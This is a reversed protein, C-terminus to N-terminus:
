FYSRCPWLAVFMFGLISAEEFDLGKALSVTAGCGLMLLTLWYAADLRRQLGYALFLLTVGFVSGLLHSVEIVPLPILPRLVEMRGPGSPIAGSLVLITGTVFVSLAMFRPTVAATLRGFWDVARAAPRRYLWLERTALVALGLGLPCFYYILRYALLAGVVRHSDDPALLALIVLEMVGVGGPVQSVLGAVIALLYISLFHLYSPAAGAPLLVYLVGAAVMLDLVAAGCQLASLPGRPLALEWSGVRLPSKRIWCLGLCALGLIGLLAGLPRTSALSLHMQSPVALPAVVFLLGALVCVGVWFSVSLIVSLRVVEVASLGWSSYLRGRITTGGLLNGFCNGVAYGLSSGLMVRTLKIRHRLYKLGLLDNVLLIVYNFVTLLAATGIQIFSISRVSDVFDELDYRHLEQHLMWLAGIFLTIIIAPGVLSFALRKM